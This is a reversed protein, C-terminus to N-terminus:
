GGNGERVAIIRDLVIKKLIRVSLRLDNGHLAAVIRDTVIGEFGGLAPKGRSVTVTIAKVAVEEKPVSYFASLVTNPDITVVM